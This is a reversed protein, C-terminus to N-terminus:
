LPLSDLGSASFFAPPSNKQGATTRPCRYSGTWLVPDVGTHEGTGTAFDGLFCSLANGLGAFNVCGGPEKKALRGPSQRNQLARYGCSCNLPSQGRELSFGPTLEGIVRNANLTTRIATGLKLGQRHDLDSYIVEVIGPVCDVM